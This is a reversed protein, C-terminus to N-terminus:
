SLNLINCEHRKEWEFISSYLNSQSFEGLGYEKHLYKQCKAESIQKREQKLRAIFRKMFDHGNTIEAINACCRSTSFYAFEKQFTSTNIDSTNESVLPYLYNIDTLNSTSINVLDLHKFKYKSHNTYNYWKLYSLVKLEDTIEQFLYSACAIGCKTATRTLVENNSICMMEHDHFDAYFIHEKPSISANVRLFDSDRIIIHKKINTADISIASDINKLNSCGGGPRIGCTAENFFPEYFEVDKPGEVLLLVKHNNQPTKWELILKGVITDHEEQLTKLSTM